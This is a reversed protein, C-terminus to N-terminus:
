RAAAGPAAAKQAALATLRAHLEDFWGPPTFRTAAEVVWVRDDAWAGCKVADKATILVVDTDFYGFPSRTYQAHDPMARTQALSLGHAQLMGFFRRPQGIGALAGARASRYEQRWAGWDLERGSALHLMRGPALRMVVQRAPTAPGAPTAEGTALNTVIYDVEALRSAPERLPGAPLLRSNGLGRADQVVIEVDRALALHQLGDDAIILDVEPHRAQLAQLALARRPHVAVPVRGAAAILAPEDGYREAQLRGLGVLPEDQARGGYGRSVVGPHWGRARLADILALVVPTKGTGGVYLNGVIIVPHPSGTASEPNRRYRRRKAAVVRGTIWALPLLLTSAPGKSRWVAHAARALAAAPKM